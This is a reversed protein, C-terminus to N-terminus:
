SLTITIQRQMTGSTWIGVVMSQAPLVYTGRYDRWKTASWASTDVSEAASYGWGFVSFRTPGTVSSILGWSPPSFVFPATVTATTGPPTTTESYDYDISQTPASIRLRQRKFDPLAPYGDFDFTPIVPSANEEWFVENIRLHFLANAAVAEVAAVSFGSEGMGVGGNELSYIGNEIGGNLFYEPSVQPISSAGSSSLTGRNFTAVETQDITQTFTTGGATYSRAGWIRQSVEITQYIPNAEFFVDAPYTAFNNYPTRGMKLAPGYVRAIRTM